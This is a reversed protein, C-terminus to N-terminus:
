FEVESVASEAPQSDVNVDAVIADLISLIENGTNGQRLQGLLLDRSMILFFTYTFTPTKLACGVGM